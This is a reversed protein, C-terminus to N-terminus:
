KMEKVKSEIFSIEEDTLGYKKYLQQDIDHVSQTWDIDSNPTFDQLPVMRWVSKKNDQTAKLVGLMARTFKTKVYKLLADAETRTEFAGISIFTQTHGVEPGEIFPSSLREGFTGSGNSKPLVVKYKNLNPHANIYAKRIFQHIRQNNFRGVM